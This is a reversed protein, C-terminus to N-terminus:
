TNRICTPTIKPEAHIVLSHISSLIYNRNMKKIRRSPQLLLTKSVELLNQLRLVQPFDVQKLENM